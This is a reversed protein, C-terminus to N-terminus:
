FTGMLNCSLHCKDFHMKYCCRVSQLNGESLCASSSSTGVEPGQGAPGAQHLRHAQHGVRQLPQDHHVGRWLGRLTGGEGGAGQPLIINVFIKNWEKNILHIFICLYLGSSTLTTDAGPRPASGASQCQPSTGHTPAGDWYIVLPLPGWAQMQFLEMM